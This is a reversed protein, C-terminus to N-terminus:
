GLCLLVPEGAALVCEPSAQKEPVRRLQFVAGCAPVSISIDYKFLAHGNVSELNTRICRKTRKATYGFSLFFDIFFPVPRIM